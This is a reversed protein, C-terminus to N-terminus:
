FEGAASFQPRQWRALVGGAAALADADSMDEGGSLRTIFEISAPLDAKRAPCVRLHRDTAEPYVTAVVPQGAGTADNRLVAYTGAAPLALHPVVSCWLAPPHGHTEELVQDATLDLAFPRGLLPIAGDVHGAILADRVRSSSISTQEEMRRAVVHVSFGDEQGRRVLMALGGERDHGFHFDEGMWLESLQLRGELADLFGDATL